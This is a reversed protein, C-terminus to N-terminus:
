SRAERGASALTQDADPDQSTVEHDEQNWIGFLVNRREEARLERLSGAIRAIVLVMVSWAILIGFFAAVAKGYNAKVVAVGAIPAGLQRLEVRERALLAREEQVEAVYAVLAQAAAGALTRAGDVTPASAQIKVVPNGEVTFASVSMVGAPLTTGPESPASLIQGAPVGAARAIQRKVETTGVMQAYISARTSLESVDISLAGLASHRTDVLVDASAVSTVSEKKELGPLSYVTSIAVVLAVIAGLAVWIRRRWLENLISAIDM